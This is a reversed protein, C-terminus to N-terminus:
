KVRSGYKIISFTLCPPMLYWTKPIVQGLILGLDGPGHPFVRVMMIRNLLSRKNACLLISICTLNTLLYNSPLKIKLFNSRVKKSATLPKWINSYLVFLEIWRLENIQVWDLHLIIYVATLYWNNLKQVWHFPKM